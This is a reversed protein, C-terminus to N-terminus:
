GGGLLKRGAEILAPRALTPGTGASWPACHQALLKDIPSGPPAQNARPATAVGTSLSAHGDDFKTTTDIKFTRTACDLRVSAISYAVPKDGHLQAGPKNVMALYVSPTNSPGRATTSGFFATTDSRGLARFESWDQAQVLTPTLVLAAATLVMSRM